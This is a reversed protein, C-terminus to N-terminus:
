PGTWLRLWLLEMVTVVGRPGTSLGARWARHLRKQQLEGEFLDSAREPNRKFICLRQGVVDDQEYPLHLAGSAGCGVVLPVSSHTSALLLPSTSWSIPSGLARLSRRERVNCHAPTGKASTRIEQIDDSCSDLQCSCFSAFAPRARPTLSHWQRTCVNDQLHTRNRM